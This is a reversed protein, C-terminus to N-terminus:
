ARRGPDPRRREHHAVDRLTFPGEPLSRRAHAARWRCLARADIAPRIRRRREAVADDRSGAPHLLEHGVATWRLSRRRGVLPECWHDLRRPASEYRVRPSGLDLHERSPRHWDTTRHAANGRQSRPPITESRVAARHVADDGHGLRGFLAPKSCRARASGNLSDHSVVADYNFFGGPPSADPVRYSGAIHRRAGRIRVASCASRGRAHRTTEDVHFKLGRLATLPTSRRAPVSTDADTPLRCDGTACTMKVSGSRAPTITASSLPPVPSRATSRRRGAVNRRRRGRRNATTGGGARAAEAQPALALMLLLLALRIKSM